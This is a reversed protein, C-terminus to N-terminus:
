QADRVPHLTVPSTEWAADDIHDYVGTTVEYLFGWLTEWRSPTEEDRELRRHYSYSWLLEYGNHFGGYHDGPVPGTEDYVTLEQYIGSTPAPIWPVWRSPELQFRQIASKAIREIYAM